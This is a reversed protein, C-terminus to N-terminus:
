MGKARTIIACVITDQFSPDAKVHIALRNAHLIRGIVYLKIDADSAVIEISQAKVFERGIMPDNRSTVMVKVNEPLSRLEQLVITRASEDNTCEDLADIIIFVKSYRTIETRLVIALEERTFAPQRSRHKDYLQSINDSLVPCNQILQKLLSSVLNLATQEVRAKYDCYICAVAVDKGNYITQLHNVVVSSFSVLDSFVSM